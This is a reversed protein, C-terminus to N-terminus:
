TSDKAKEENDEVNVDTSMSQESIADTQHLMQHLMPLSRVASHLDFLGEDTYVNMTMDIDEHRMLEQAIRPSIGANALWTNFTVRLSHIDVTKGRHDLKPIGARKCDGNFRKILDGPVEFLPATPPRGEVRKRLLDAVDPHLPQSAAKRRKDVAAALDIHPGLADLRVDRVLVDTLEGIRLGTSVLVMYLEARSFGSLKEAPRRSKPGGKTDPRRPAARAAQVLRRFEEVSLACRLRARIPRRM